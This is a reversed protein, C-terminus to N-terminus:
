YDGPFRFLEVNKIIKKAKQLDRKYTRQIDDDKIYDEETTKEMKQVIQAITLGNQKLDYVELYRELEKPRIRTSRRRFMMGYPKIGAIQEKREKVIQGFQGKLNTITDGAINVRIHVYPPQRFLKVFHRKLEQLSPKQGHVGKFGQVYDDLDIAFLHGYDKVSQATSRFRFWDEFTTNHIDGFELYNALLGYSLRKNGEALDEDVETFSEPASFGRKERERVKEYFVRYRESRKLYEWWLRWYEKEKEM